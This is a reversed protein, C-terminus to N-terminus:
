VRGHQELQEAPTSGPYTTQYGSGGAAVDLAPFAKGRTVPMKDKRSLAYEAATMFQGDVFHVKQPTFPKDPIKQPQNNGVQFTHIRAFNGYEPDTAKVRALKVRGASDEGWYYTTGAEKKAAEMMELSRNSASMRSAAYALLVLSM